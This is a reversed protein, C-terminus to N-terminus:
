WVYNLRKQKQERKKKKKQSLTEYGLNDKFESGRGGGGLHDTDRTVM